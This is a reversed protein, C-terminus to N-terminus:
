TLLISGLSYSHAAPKVCGYPLKELKLQTCICLERTKGELVKSISCLKERVILVTTSPWFRGAMTEIVGKSWMAGGSSPTATGEGSIVWSRFAPFSSFQPHVGVLIKFNTTSTVLSTNSTLRSFFQFIEQHTVKGM